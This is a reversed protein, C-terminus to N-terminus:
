QAWFLIRILYKFLTPGFSLLKSGTFLQPGSKKVANPWPQRKDDDEGEQSPDTRLDVHKKMVVAKIITRRTDEEELILSWGVVVGFLLIFTIITFMWVIHSGINMCRTDFSHYLYKTKPAKENQKKNEKNQIWIIKYINGKEVFPKNQDQKQRKSSSTLRVKNESMDKGRLIIIKKSPCEFTKYKRGLYNSSTTESIYMYTSNEKEKKIKNKM